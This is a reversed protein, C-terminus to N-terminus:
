PNNLIPIYSMVSAMLEITTSDKAPPDDPDNQSTVNLIYEEIQGFTADEPVSVVIELTTSEGPALEIIDNSRISFTWEGSTLDIYYLDNNMGANTLTLTVVADNGPAQGISISSSSLVPAYDAIPKPGILMELSPDGLLNYSEWYYRSQATGTGPRQAEVAMLGAYRFYGVINASDSGSYLADMMARELTDDPGWFSSSSSGIFAVAAKNSQLLWTEGFSETVSFDGTVCAFSAVVSFTGTSSISRINSQSFYPGGWSSRSGHGSYAILARKNNIASIVNANGASYAIAYLKDGGAQPSSPYTGTYGEPLTHNNIVYNQTAEAIYYYSSDSSALLSAKKVWAESGTLENYASLNNIMTNLQATTRAPLRGVFIDPIWDSGDVTGYYLDTVTNSSAGTFAPMTLSGNAVDGVLIVYTPPNSWTNYANQIYAKIDNASSGTSSIGVLTTSFGQSEKLSVLASLTALFGDPSVILVMEGETSRDAEIQFDKTYNLIQDSLIEDFAASSQVSSNSSATRVDGNLINIRVLLEQYIEVTQDTENYQVPWFQMQAVQHGRVVYTSVLEAPSSPYLNDKEIIVEVEEVVEVDENEVNEDDCGDPSDCKGVEEARDPISPPLGAEGLVGSYSQSSLIEISFESGAPLEIEQRLVPLDPTGADSPHSYINENFVTGDENSVLPNEPFRVQIEIADATSSLVSVEPQIESPQAQLESTAASVSNPFVLSAVIILIPLYKMLKNSIMKNIQGLWYFDSIIQRYITRM